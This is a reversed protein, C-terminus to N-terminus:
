LDGLMKQLDSSAQAMDPTAIKGDKIGHVVTSSLTLINKLKDALAPDLRRVSSLEKGIKESLAEITDHLKNLEVQSGSGGHDIQSIYENLEKVADKLAGVDKNLGAPFGHDGSNPNIPSNGNVSIM